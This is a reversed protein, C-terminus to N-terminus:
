QGNAAGSANGSALAGIRRYGKTANRDAIAAVKGARNAAIARKFSAELALPDTESLGAALESRVREAAKSSGYNYFDGITSIANKVMGQGKVARAVSNLALGGLGDVSSDDAANLMTSSGTNIRAHTKALEAEQGMTEIFRTLGKEGGFIKALAARKKPTGMLGNVSDAYDGKANATDVIASRLGLKFQEIEGAGMKSTMAAIEDGSKSIAKQGLLLAEQGQMPGAYAARAKAYAPVEADLRDLLTSRLDKLFPLKAKAVSDGSYAASISRDLSKKAYDLTRVDLHNDPLPPPPEEGKAKALFVDDAHIKRGGSIAEVMDPHSSLAKIVPDTVEGHGYSEDYLPAADRKAQADLQQTRTAVGTTPGLDRTVASEIRETQSPQFENGAQRPLVVDKILKRSPGPKRSLGNALGLLGDGTDMPAMPVGNAHAERIKTAMESPTMDQDALAKLFLKGSQRSVDPAEGSVMGAVKSPIGALFKVGKAVYPLATGIVPAAVAGIGASEATQMAQEGLTGRSNGVGSLAGFGAGIKAMAQLGVKGATGAPGGALLNAPLTLWDAIPHEDKYQQRAADTEQQYNQYDRGFHTDKGKAVDGVFDLGAPIVAALKDSIGMTAKNTILDGLSYGNPSKAKADVGGGDARSITWDAIKPVHHNGSELAVRALKQIQMDDAGDPVDFTVKRGNMDATASRTAAGGATPDQRSIEAMIDKPSLGSPGDVHYTKGNPAQMEYVPM